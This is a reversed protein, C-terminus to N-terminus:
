LSFATGALDGSKTVLPPKKPSLPLQQVDERKSPIVASLAQKGPMSFLRSQADPVVSGEAGM